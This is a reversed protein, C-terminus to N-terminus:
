ISNKMHSKQIYQRGQLAGKGDGVAEVIGVSGQVSLRRQELGAHALTLADVLLNEDAVPAQRGCVVRQAQAQNIRM